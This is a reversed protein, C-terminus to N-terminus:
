TTLEVNIKSESKGSSDVRSHAETNARCFVYNLLTEGIKHKNVTSKDRTHNNGYNEAEM